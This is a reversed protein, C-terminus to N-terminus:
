LLIGGSQDHLQIRPRENEFKKNVVESLEARETVHDISNMSISTAAIFYVVIITRRTNIFPITTLLFGFGGIMLWNGLFYLQFLMEKTGGFYVAINDGNEALTIGISFLIVALALTVAFEKIFNM